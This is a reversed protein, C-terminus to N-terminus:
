RRLEEVSTCRLGYIRLATKLLWRLGRTADVGPLPELRILYTPRQAAQLSQSSTCSAEKSIVDQARADWARPDGKRFAM